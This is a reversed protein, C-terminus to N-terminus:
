EPTAIADLSLLFDTVLVVLARVGVSSLNPFLEEIAVKATQEYEARTM